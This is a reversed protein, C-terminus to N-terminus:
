PTIFELNSQQAKIYNELLYKIKDNELKLKANEDELKAIMKMCHENEEKLADM